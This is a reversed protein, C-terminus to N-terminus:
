REVVDLLHFTTKGRRLLIYRGHIPEVATLTSAEGSEESVVIGNAKVGKQSLLRRAEGNSAALGSSTLVSVLDDLSGASVHSTPVERAVVAFASESAATPDSGFLISAAESAARRAEVGHV